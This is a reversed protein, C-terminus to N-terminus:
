SREPTAGEFRYGIGWVTSLCSSSAGLKKRIKAVHADITRVDDVSPLVANALQDRSVARGSREIFYALIDFETRTMEASVGDVEVERADLDVVVSGFRVTRNPTPATIRMRARLRAVLEGIWFPKSLYDSAGLEFSRLRDELDTRATLVVVPVSSRHRLAELVTFGSEDPLMLDLVIVDFRDATTRAVVDRATTLLEVDFGEQRLGRVIGGAIAADDEVVLIRPNTM